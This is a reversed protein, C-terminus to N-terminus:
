CCLRLITATLTLMLTSLLKGTDYGRIISPRAAERGSARFWITCSATPRSDKLLRRSLTSFREEYRCYPKFGETERRNQRAEPM